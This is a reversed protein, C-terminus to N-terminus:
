SGGASVAPAVVVDSWMRRDGPPFRVHVRVLDPLTGPRVWTKEWHAPQRDDARVFYALELAAVNRLLESEAVAEAAALRGDRSHRRWRLALRGDRELVLAVDCFGARGISEPMEAVFDLTGPAGLMYAAAGRQGLGVLPLPQANQIMARLVGHVADLGAGGAIRRDQSDWLRAGFQLSGALLVALFGLVALAVIMELLTFGAQGRAAARSGRRGTM